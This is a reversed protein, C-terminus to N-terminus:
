YPLSNDYLRDIADKRVSNLEVIDYKEFQPAVSTTKTETESNISKLRRDEKAM